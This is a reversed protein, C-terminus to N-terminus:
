ENNANKRKALIQSTLGSSIMVLITSLITIFILLIGKGKFLEYHNVIGATAPIFFLVLHDIMFKAGKEIYHTKVIKSNLLLFLLMLGIISGPIALNLFVQLQEGILYLIFLLSVQLIVKIFNLM